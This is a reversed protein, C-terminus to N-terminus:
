WWPQERQLGSTHSALRYLRILQKGHYIPIHTGFYSYNQLPDTIRLKKDAELKIMVESTMIALRSLKSSM